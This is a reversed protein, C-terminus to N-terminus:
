PKVYHYHGARFHLFSRSTLQPVVHWSTVGPMQSQHASSPTPTTSSICLDKGSSQVHIWFDWLVLIGTMMRSREWQSHLLRWNPEALKSDKLRPCSTRQWAQSRFAHTGRTRYWWIWWRGQYSICQNIEPWFTWLTYLTDLYRVFWLWFAHWHPLGHRRKFGELHWM